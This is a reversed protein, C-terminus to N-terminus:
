VNSPDKQIIQEIKLIIVTMDDRTKVDTKLTYELVEYAIKQPSEEKLSNILSFLNKEEKVNEFIGDSTLMILDDDRLLIEGKTIDEEIGLPLCKNEIKEYSGDKHFVYSTSAGLKYFSAYYNTRNIDIADITSYRETYGQLIYLLNLIEINTEVSSSCYCLSDLADLVNRSDEFAKFGKGMGDSIAALFHGNDYSKILHSDGCLEKSKSALSGYGYKIHFLNKPTISFIINKKNEIINIKTALRFTSTILDIIDNKNIIDYKDVVVEILFDDRFVKKYKIDKITYNSNVLKVYLEELEKTSILEKKSIDNQYKDIIQKTETLVALLAHNAGENQKMMQNNLMNTTELISQLSPCYKKFSKPVSKEEIITKLDLMLTLKNERFCKEKLTCSACHKETICNIAKTLQNSYEKTNKFTTTFYELFSSFLTYENEISSQRYKEINKIKSTLPPEKSEIFINLLEYIISIIMIIYLYIPNYITSTYALIILVINLLFFLYNYNFFYFCTILLVILGENLGFGLYEILFFIVGLILAYINKYSRSYYIAFYSALGIGLQIDNINTKCAGLFSIIVLLHEAFLCPVKVINKVYVYDVLFIFIFILISLFIFFILKYIKYDIGMLLFSIINTILLIILFNILDNKFIKKFNKFLIYLTVVICEIILLYIIQNKLFLITSVISGPFIYFLSKYDKKLYFLVLPLFLIYGFGYKVTLAAFFGMLVLNIKKMM